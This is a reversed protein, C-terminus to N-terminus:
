TLMCSAVAESDFLRAPEQMRRVHYYTPESPRIPDPPDAPVTRAMGEEAQETGPARSGHPMATAPKPPDPVAEPIHARHQPAGSVPKREESGHGPRRRLRCARRPHHVCEGTLIFEDHNGEPTCVALLM